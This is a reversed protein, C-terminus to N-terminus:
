LFNYVFEKTSVKFKVESLRYHLISLFLESLASNKATNHTGKFNIRIFICTRPIKFSIDKKFWFKMRQEQVICKLSTSNEKNSTDGVHISIDRPIFDNETPFKFSEHLNHHENWLKMSTEDITEVYYQTGYWPVCQVDDSVDVNLNPMELNFDM